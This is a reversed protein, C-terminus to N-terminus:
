QLRERLLDALRYGAEAVRRDATEKATSYFTTSITQAQRSNTAPFGRDKAIQWSEDIWHQSTSPAPPPYFAILARCGADLKKGSLGSPGPLDDWFSHLSTVRKRTASPTIVKLEGEAADWAAEADVTHLPQHADATLHILWPLAYSREIGSSTRSGLIAALKVLQKDLQGMSTNERVPTSTFGPLPRNVYHWDRQRQMDPFGPLPPTVAEDPDHFRPDYRIRDAWISAEIFATRERTAVAAQRTWYAYDPHERLLTSARDRTVAPLQEWAICASLRHGTTNWAQASLPVLAIFLLAPLRRRRIGNAWYSRKDTM